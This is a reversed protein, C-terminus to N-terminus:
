SPGSTLHQFGLYEAWLRIPAPVHILLLGRRLWRRRLVGDARGLLRQLRDKVINRLKNRASGRRKIHSRDVPVSRHGLVSRNGLNFLKRGALTRGRQRRERLALLRPKPVRKGLGCPANGLRSRSREIRSCCGCVNEGVAAAIVVHNTTQLALSRCSATLASFLFRCNSLVTSAAMSSMTREKGGRDDLPPWEM